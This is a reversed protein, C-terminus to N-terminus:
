VLDDISQLLTSYLSVADEATDPMDLNQEQMIISPLQTFEVCCGSEAYRYCCRQEALEIDDINVDQKLDAGGTIDSVFYLMDPRGSPSEANNTPRIKHLNWLVAVKYLEKRILPM